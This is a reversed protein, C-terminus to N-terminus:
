LDPIQDSQIFIAVSLGGGLGYKFTMGQPYIARRHALTTPFISTALAVALDRYIHFLTCVDKDKWRNEYKKQLKYSGVLKLYAKTFNVYCDTFM